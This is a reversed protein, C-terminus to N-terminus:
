SFRQLTDCTAHLETSRSGQGGTYFSKM